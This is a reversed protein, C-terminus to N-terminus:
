IMNCYRDHTSVGTLLANNMEFFDCATFTVRNQQLQISFDNVENRICDRDLNKRPLGEMAIYNLNYSSNRNSNQEGNQEELPRPVELSLRNRVSNAKDLNTSKNNLVMAYIIIGTRNSERSALTCVWCMLGFKIAYLIWLINNILMFGYNKEVVGMYIRFLTAVVMTFCNASCLLLHLGHIDNVAIVLDCIDAYCFKFPACSKIHACSKYRININNDCNYSIHKCQM